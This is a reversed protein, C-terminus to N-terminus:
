IVEKGWEGEEEKGRGDEAEEEEGRGHEAHGEDGEAAGRGSGTADAWNWRSGAAQCEWEEESNRWAATEGKLTTTKRGRRQSGPIIFFPGNSELYGHIDNYM